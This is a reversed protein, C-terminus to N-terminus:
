AAKPSQPRLTARADQQRRVRAIAEPDPPVILTSPYTDALTGALIKATIRSHDDLPQIFSVAKPGRERVLTLLEVKGSAVPPQFVAVAGAALCTLMDHLSFCAHVRQLSRSPEVILEPPLGLGRDGDIRCTGDIRWRIVGVVKGAASCAPMTFWETHRDWGIALARVVDRSLGLAEEIEVEHAPTLQEAFQLALEKYGAPEDFEEGPSNADGDDANFHEYM